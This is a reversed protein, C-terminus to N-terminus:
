GKLGAFMQQVEDLHAVDDIRRQGGDEYTKVSGAVRLGGGIVEQNACVFRIPLLHAM